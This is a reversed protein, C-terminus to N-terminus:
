RQALGLGPERLYLVQSTAKGNQDKTVENIFHSNHYYKGGVAFTLITSTAQGKAGPRAWQLYRTFALLAQITPASAPNSRSLLSCVSSWRIEWGVLGETPSQLLGPQSPM